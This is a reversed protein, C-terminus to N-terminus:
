PQRTHRRGGSSQDRCQELALDIRSREVHVRVRKSLESEVCRHRGQQHEAERVAAPLVIEELECYM